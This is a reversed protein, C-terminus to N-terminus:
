RRSSLRPTEPVEEADATERHVQDRIVRQTVEALYETLAQNLEVFEAWLVTELFSKPGRLMVTQRHARPYRYPKLGYRRSLALFLMRSWPDAISFRMEIAAEAQGAARLKARLREAAAGAADREGPTGAGAFLAEIKALRERLKAEDMSM